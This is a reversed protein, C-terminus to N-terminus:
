IHILSLNGYLRSAANERVACTNIVVVDAVWAAAEDAPAPLYGAQELMGAMHESDHVNMQCGLTRVLYTPAVAPDASTAGPAPATRATTATMGELTRPGPPRTRGPRAVAPAVPAAVTSRDRICM